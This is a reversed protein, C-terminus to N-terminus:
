RRAAVDELAQKYGQQYNTAPPDPTFSALAKAVYDDASAAAPSGILAALQPLDAARVSVSYYGGKPGISTLNLTGGDSLTARLEKDPAAPTLQVTKSDIM